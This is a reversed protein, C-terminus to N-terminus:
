RCVKVQLDHTAAPKSPDFPRALVLRWTAEGCALGYVVVSEPVLTLPPPEATGDSPPTLVAPAEGLEVSVHAVGQGGLCTASWINGSGAYSPLSIEMRGGVELTVDRPLGSLDVTM